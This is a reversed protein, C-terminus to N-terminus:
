KKGKQYVRVYDVQFVRPFDTADPNGGNMGGIALNLLMYQPHKFPFYDNSGKHSYLSDQPQYNLLSDDVFIGIGNEDWDMRWVHFADAWGEGLSAVPVTNSFWKPSNPKETAVAYNALIKGKYYEMIDIEGNDPWGGGSTGLMWWAPWCGPQIDIKGRMEFRGYLWDKLGRTNISSSTYQITPRNRKWNSSGAEYNPNPMSDRRATITLLGNHCVANAPQYWQHENNRVFGKEHKWTASDPPGEKDFEDSWVLKWTTSGPQAYLGAKCAICTTVVIVKLMNGLRNM